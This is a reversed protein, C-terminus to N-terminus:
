YKYQRTARLDAAAEKEKKKYKKGFESLFFPCNFFETGVIVIINITITIASRM